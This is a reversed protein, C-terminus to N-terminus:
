TGTQFNTAAPNGSVVKDGGGGSKSVSAGQDAWGGDDSNALRIDAQDDSQWEATLGREDRLRVNSEVAYTTAARPGVANATSTWWGLALLLAAAATRWDLRARW